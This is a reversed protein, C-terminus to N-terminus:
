MDGSEDDLALVLECTSHPGELEELERAASARVEPRAHALLGVLRPVDKREAADEVFHRPDFV